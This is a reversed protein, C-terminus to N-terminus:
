EGRGIIALIDQVIKMHREEDAHIALVVEKEHDSINQKLINQYYDRAKKEISYLEEFSAILKERSESM